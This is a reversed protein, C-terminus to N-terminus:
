YHLPTLGNYYAIHLITEDDKNAQKVDAGKDILIKAIEIYGNLCAIQLATTGYENAYNVDAGRTIIEKIISLNKKDKIAQILEENLQQQKKEDSILSPPIFYNPFSQPM